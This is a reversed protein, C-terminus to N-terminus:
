TLIPFFISDCSGNREKNLYIHATSTRRSFLNDGLNSTLSSKSLLKPQVLTSALCQVNNLLYNLPVYISKGQAM